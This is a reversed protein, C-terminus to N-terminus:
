DLANPGFCYNLEPHWVWQVLFRRGGVGNLNYAAGDRGDVTLQGTYSGGGGTGYIGECLDAIETPFCPDTGAYWANALPNSAMEALEHGIVSIMADVGLDGNPPAGARPGGYGAPVAFPWACVGPCARASNGVWAYPLTYGVISPFTFYHFGCVQGCFDDVYVDDSTLLLYLGGQPNVPLPRTRASVASRIVHQVTLRSLRKGHSCLRDNKEAGLRVARSVNSGTQDTYLAVTRWWAAVSPKPPAAGDPSISRIFARIIRKKPPDWAGYWIPHVTINATLVPGMHYRLHVFESSGEYKKSDGFNFTGNPNRNPWPRWAFSQTSISLLSIFLILLPSPSSAPPTRLVGARSPRM